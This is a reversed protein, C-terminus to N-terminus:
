KLKLPVLNDKVQEAINWESLIKHKYHSNLPYFFKRMPCDMTCLVCKDPVILKTQWLFDWMLNLNKLIGDYKKLVIQM